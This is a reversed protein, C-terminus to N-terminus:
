RPRNTNNYATEISLWANMCRRLFALYRVYDIDDFEANEDKAMTNLRAIETNGYIAENIPGFSNWITIESSAIAFRNSQRIQKALYLLTALVAIAGIIEGFAGLADWNM